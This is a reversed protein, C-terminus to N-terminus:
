TLPGSHTQSLNLVVVGSERSPTVEPLIPYPQAAPTQLFFVDQLIEGIIIKSIDSNVQIFFFRVEIGSHSILSVEIFYTLV